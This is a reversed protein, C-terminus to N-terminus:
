QVDPDETWHAALTWAKYAEVRGVREIADNRYREVRAPAGRGMDYIILRWTMDPDGRDLLVLTDDVLVTPPPVPPVRVWSNQRVTCVEAPVGPVGPVTRLTSHWRWEQSCTPCAWRSDKTRWFPKDCEHEDGDSPRGVLGSIGDESAAFYETM